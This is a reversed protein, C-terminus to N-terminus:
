HFLVTQGQRGQGNNANNSSNNQGKWRHQACRQVRSGQEAMERRPLLRLILPWLPLASCCSGTLCHVLLCSPCPSTLLPSHNTTSHNALHHTFTHSPQTNRNPAPVLSHQTHQQASELLESNILLLLSISSLYLQRNTHCTFTTTKSHLTTSDAPHTVWPVVVLSDVVCQVAPWLM